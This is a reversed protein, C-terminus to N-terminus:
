KIIIKTTVTPHSSLRAFYCGSPLDLKVYTKGIFCVNRQNVISGNIDNILLEASINEDVSELYLYEGINFIKLDDAIKNDINRTTLNFHLLFRNLPDDPNASFTYTTDQILNIMTDLLQDELCILMTVSFGLLEKMYITYEGAVGSEFGLQITREYYDPFSNVSLSEDDESLSYFQPASLQGYLKHGDYEPDYQSSSGPIFRIRCQDYFSNQDGSVKLVIVPDDTAISKYFTTNDHTRSNKSITISNTPGTAKIFFGQTSPIINNAIISTYNGASEDYIHAVTEINSLSWNGDNWKIACPYPNGLLHWGNGNGFSLDNFSINDNYLSGTFEKTNTAEYAVLYGKGTEMDFSQTKYNLWMYASEDWRYLDDNNGPAIGSGGITFNGVPSSLLHWGDEDGTYAEIYREFTTTGRNTMSLSGNNLFSGTGSADSEITFDGNIDLLYGSNITLWANQQIVLDNCVASAIGIVPYNSAGEPITVDTIEGPINGDDWNSDSNWNNTIASVKWLGPTYPDVKFNDFGFDNADTSASYWYMGSHTGTTHDNDSITESLIVSTGMAGNSYGWSWTGDAQREVAINWGQNINATATILEDIKSWGSGSAKELYLGDPDGGDPDALRLRYGNVNGDEINGIDSSGVFLILAFGRGNTIAASNGSVYVEWRVAYSFNIATSIETIITSNLEGNNKSRLSHDGDFDVGSGYPWSASTIEFDSIDGAWSLQGSGTFPDQNDVEFGELIGDAYLCHDFSHIILLILACTFLNRM